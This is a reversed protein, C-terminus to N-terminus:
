TSPRVPGATVTSVAQEEDSTASCQAACDSRLPSHAIASAPPTVTIAVGPMNLSNARCPPSAASARQLAYAPAASPVVQPSPTPTSTTSRSDSARRSPCRTSPRSRPEATFWSPADFPSVAGLPGDCSRTIRCASAFAPTSAASTSRISPWPVPVLSPSGM